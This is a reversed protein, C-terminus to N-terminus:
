RRVAERGTVRGPGRRKFLENYRPYPRIMYEANAMFFNELLYRCDDESLGDAPLRSVQMLRDTGGPLWV